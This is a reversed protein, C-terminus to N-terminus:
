ATELDTLLGLVDPAEFVRYRQRGVNRQRLIGAGALANVAETTRPKSRGILVSASEVSLSLVGPLVQLPLDTSSNARVRGLRRRWGAAMADIQEAYGEAEICSRHTATALVRLWEAAAESRAPSAPQGLHRFSTLGAVYADSWGALVSSIPPVM